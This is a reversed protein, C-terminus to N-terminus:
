KRYNQVYRSFNWTKLFEDAAKYGNNYMEMAYKDALDFDTAKINPVKVTITRVLDKDRIFTEENVNLPALIVDKTYNIFGDMGQMTRSKGDNLKLGLTPWRPVGAVDFIWIPFNSLLGGDVIYINKEDYKLISPTFYFPISASMTVAKSIDFEKPDIGYKILDDPLILMNRTTIDSAVIKLRSKGDKMVDKFKTIGKAKLLPEIWTEINNGNYLGKRFWLNALKPVKIGNVYTPKNLYKYNLTNILKFLEDETYGAVVLAAVIAGASAGACREISYGHKKLCAIAGVFSIGLVGGGEFVMDVKM